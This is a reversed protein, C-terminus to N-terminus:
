WVRCSIFCKKKLFLADDSQGYNNLGRHGFAKQDSVYSVRFPSLKVPKMESRL